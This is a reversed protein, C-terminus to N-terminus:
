TSGFKDRSGPGGAEVKRIEERSYRTGPQYGRQRQGYGPSARLGRRGAYVKRLYFDSV